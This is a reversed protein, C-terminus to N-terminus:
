QSWGFSQGTGPQVSHVIAVEAKNIIAKQVGREGFQESLIGYLHSKREASKMNSETEKYLKRQDLMQIRRTQSASLRSELRAVNRLLMQCSKTLKNLQAVHKLQYRM